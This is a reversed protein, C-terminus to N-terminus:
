LTAVAASPCASLPQWVCAGGLGRVVMLLCPPQLTKGLSVVVSVSMAPAGIPLKGTVLRVGAVMVVTVFNHIYRYINISVYISKEVLGTQLYFMVLSAKKSRVEDECVHATTQSNVGKKLQNYLMYIM